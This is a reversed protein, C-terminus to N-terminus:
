VSFLKYFVKLLILYTPSWDDISEIITSIEYYGML